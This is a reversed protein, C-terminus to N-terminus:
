IGPGGRSPWGIHVGKGLMPRACTAQRAHILLRQGMRLYPHSRPHLGVSQLIKCGLKRGKQWGSAVAVM